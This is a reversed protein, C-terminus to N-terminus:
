KKLCFVAYSIQSHSSNLRTSKRDQAGPELDGAGAGEGIELGAAGVDAEARLRAGLRLEDMRQVRRADGERTGDDRQQLVVLRGVTRHAHRLCEHRVETDVAQSRGGLSRKRWTAGVTATSSTATSDPRLRPVPRRMM